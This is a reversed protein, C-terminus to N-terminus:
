TNPDLIQCVSPVRAGEPIRGKRVVSAGLVTISNLAMEMTHM